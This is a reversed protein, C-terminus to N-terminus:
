QAGSRTGRPSGGIPQGEPMPRGATLFGRAYLNDKVRRFDAFSDPYTWITITTTNPDFQKLRRDFDSQDKLASNVPEGMHESAPVLIFGDLDVVERVAAGGSTNMSIKRRVLRYKMTFGGVPGVIENIESTDKLKYAKLQAQQKMEEALQNLPVYVLRGGSLRFHEEEGFVTKAMPTPLHKLVVVPAASNEAAIKASSLDELEDRAAQLQRRIDFEAQQSGDLKGREEQILQEAALAM